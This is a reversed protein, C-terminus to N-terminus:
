GNQVKGSLGSVSKAEARLIKTDTVKPLLWWNPMHVPTKPISKKQRNKVLYLIGPQTGLEKGM